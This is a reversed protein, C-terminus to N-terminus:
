DLQFENRELAALFERNTALLNPLRLLQRASFWHISEVEAPNPQLPSDRELRARWWTLQVGSSTSNNWLRRTIRAKAALEEHLERQLAAQETEGLEIGGGPFCFAGPARVYQSRRIVLFEDERTIVAVVGHRATPLASGAPDHDRSRRPYAMSPPVEYQDTCQWDLPRAVSM